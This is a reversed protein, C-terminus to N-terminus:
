RTQHRTVEPPTSFTGPVPRARRTAFWEPTRGHSPAIILVNIPRWWSYFLLSAVILWGLAWNRSLKGLVFFGVLVAPLFAFIFEISNFLM